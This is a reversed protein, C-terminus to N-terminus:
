WRTIRHHDKLHAEIDAQRFRVCRGIKYYPLYGRKMWNDVCRTTCQVFSAVQAKTLLRQPVPEGQTSNHDLGKVSTSPSSKEDFYSNKLPDPLKQAPKM